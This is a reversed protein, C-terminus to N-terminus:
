CGITRIVLQHLQQKVQWLNASQRVFQSRHCIQPFLSQWHQKHYLWIAKDTHFGLFEATIEMTIVEADTLKPTSGRRRLPKSILQKYLDDILCFVTIIFDEVQVAVREFTTKLSIINLQLRAKM